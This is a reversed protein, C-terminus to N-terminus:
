EAPIIGWESLRHDVYKQPMVLMSSIDKSSKGLSNIQHKAWDKLHDPMMIEIAALIGSVDRVFLDLDEDNRHFEAEILCRALASVDVTRKQDLILHSVEKIAVFRRWCRNNDSNIYIEVYEQDNDDLFMVYMGLLDPMDIPFETFPTIPIGSHQSLVRIFKDTNIAIPLGGGQCEALYALYVPQIIEKLYQKFEEM